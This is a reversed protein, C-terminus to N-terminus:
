IVNTNRIFNVVKKRFININPENKISFPMINYNRHGKYFLSCQKANTDSLKLRFENNNRLNYPQSDRVYQIQEILHESANGNEEHLDTDKIINKSFHDDM